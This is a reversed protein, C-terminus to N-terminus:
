DQGMGMRQFRTRYYSAASRGNAVVDYVKWGDDSQYMRFEMKSPYGGPRLIGVNVSVSGRAGKRPRLMRVQQGKYSALQGGLATLFGEELRAAMAEKQADSMRGYAPGAVWRAMYDFDFYPAIERDLFAAVQLKNPAEDQGMFELLKDIGAKLTATAQLTPSRAIIAQRAADRDAPATEPAPQAQPRTPVGARPASQPMMPMGGMGPPMPYPAGAPGYPQACVGTSGLLVVLPLWPRFKM